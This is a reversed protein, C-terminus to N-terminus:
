SRVIAYGTFADHCSDLEHPGGQLYGGFDQNVDSLINFLSDGVGNKALYAQADAAYSGLQQETEPFNDDLADIALQYERVVSDALTAGDGDLTALRCAETECAAGPAPQAEKTQENCGAMAVLAAM